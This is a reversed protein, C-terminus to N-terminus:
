GAEPGGERSEEFVLVRLGRTAEIAQTRPRQLLFLSLAVEYRTADRESSPDFFQM